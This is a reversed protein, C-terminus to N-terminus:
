NTPGTGRIAFRETSLRTMGFRDFLRDYTGDAKLATLAEAAAEAVAKSRFAFTIDTGFLIRLHAKAINRQVLENVNEDINIAAELQGARLAAVTESATSFTRFDIPKLGRAVMDANVERSKREQYTATEIGVVRGSDDRVAEGPVYVDEDNLGDARLASLYLSSVVYVSDPPPAGLVTADKYISKYLEIHGRKEVLTRQMDVRAVMGSPEVTEVLERASDYINLAHPTMNIIKVTIEKPLKVGHGPRM